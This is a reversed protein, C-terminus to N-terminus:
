KLRKTYSIVYSYKKGFPSGIKYNILDEIKKRSIYVLRNRFQMMQGMTIKRKM